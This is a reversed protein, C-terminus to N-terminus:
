QGGENDRMVEDVPCRVDARFAVAHIGADSGSALPSSIKQLTSTLGVHHGEKAIELAWLSATAM